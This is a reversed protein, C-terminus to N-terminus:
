GSSTALSWRMDFWFLRAKETVNVKPSTKVQCGQGATHKPCIGNPILTRLMGGISPLLNGYLALPVM